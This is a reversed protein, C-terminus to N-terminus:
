ALEYEKEKVKEKVKEKEKATIDNLITQNKIYIENLEALKNMKVFKPFILGKKFEASAFIYNRGPIFENRENLPGLHYHCYYRKGNHVKKQQVSLYSYQGTKHVTVIKGSNESIPRGVKKKRTDKNEAKQTEQKNKITKKRPKVEFFSIDDNDEKYDNEVDKKKNFENTM